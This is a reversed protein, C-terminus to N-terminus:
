VLTFDLKNDANAKLAKYIAWAMTMKWEPIEEGDWSEMIKNKKHWTIISDEIVVPVDPILEVEKVKGEFTAGGTIQSYSQTTKIKGDIPDIIKYIGASVKGIAFVWHSHNVELIVATDPSDFLAKDITDYNANYFRWTFKFASDVADKVSHWYIEAQDTFKCGKALQAPTKYTGYYDSMMSIATLTCGWRALTYKTNGITVGGWKPDGQRLKLM